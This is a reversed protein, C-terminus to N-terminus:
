LVFLLKKIHDSIQGCQFSRNVIYLDQKFQLSLFMAIYYFPLFLKKRSEMWSHLFYFGILSTAQDQDHCHSHLQVNNHAHVSTRWQEASRKQNFNHCLEKKSAAKACIYHVKQAVM